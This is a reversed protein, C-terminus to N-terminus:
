GRVSFVAWPDLVFRLPAVDDVVLEVTVSESSDNHGFVGVTGDPNSFAVIPMSDIRETPVVAAGPDGARALQRMVSFEPTPEISGTTPDVTILGRCDDCGGAAKPGHQPDLALNWTLVGRAGARVSEAVLERAMWGVSTAWEGTTATCETVIPDDVLAMDAPVGDYCHFAVGDFPASAVLRAAREADSWNHDLALLDVDFEDLQEAVRDALTIMQEDTMGLTPYDGVHGPENGLSIARLDVGRDLLTEVQGLLLEGYDALGEDLLHGGRREPDTRLGSPSTWAAAYVGVGADADRIQDLVDLAAVAQPSPEVGDDTTAWTWDDTSFDTSSLPLRVLDLGAGGDTPDGFLTAIADDRDALLRASADTLAAGVGHWRQATTSTDVTVVRDPTALVPAGGIPHAGGPVAAAWAELRRPSAVPQAM